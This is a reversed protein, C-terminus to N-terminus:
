SKNFLRYICYCDCHTENFIVIIESCFRWSVLPAIGHLVGASSDCISLSCAQHSGMGQWYYVDVGAGATTSNSYQLGFNPDAGSINNRLRIGVIYDPRVPIEPPDLNRDVM